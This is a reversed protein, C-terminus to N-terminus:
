AIRCDERGSGGVGAWPRTMSGRGYEMKTHSAALTGPIMDEDLDKNFTDLASKQIKTTATGKRFQALIYNELSARRRQRSSVSQQLGM